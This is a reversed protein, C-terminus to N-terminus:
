KPAIVIGPLSSYIDSRSPSRVSPPAHSAESIGPLKSRGLQPWPRTVWRPPRRDRDGKRADQRGPTSETGGDWWGVM